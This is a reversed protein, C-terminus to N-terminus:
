IWNSRVPPRIYKEAEPVGTVKMKVGDYQFGHGLQVALLGTLAIETMQGATVFNSYPAPGGKCAAIWEMLQNETRPLKVPVSKGAEHFNVDKFKEEGQLKMRAGGNHSDTFIVGKEGLLLVGEKIGPVHQLFPGPLPLNEYWYVM